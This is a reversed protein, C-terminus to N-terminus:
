QLRGARWRVRCVAKRRGTVYDYFYNCTEGGCDSITECASGSRECAIWECQYDGGLRNLPFPVRRRLGIWATTTSDDYLDGKRITELLDFTSIQHGQFRRDLRSWVTQVAAYQEYTAWVVWLGAFLLALLGAYLIKSEVNDEAAVFM